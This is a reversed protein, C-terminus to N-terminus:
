RLAEMVFDPLAITRGAGQFYTIETFPVSRAVEACTMFFAQKKSFLHALPINDMLKKFKQAGTVSVRQDVADNHHRLLVVHSLPIPKRSFMGAEYVAYKELGRRIPRISATDRGSDKLTDAWVNLQPVGPLLTAKGEHLAVACVEDALLKCGRDYLALALATKGAKSAGLIAIGKGNVVAAAGHLAVLGRQMLLAPLASSLLFVRADEDSAGDSSEIVIRKGHEVCYNAIGPVRLLFRNGAAEYWRDAFDANELHGPVNGQEITVDAEARVARDMEPLEKESEFTLGFASWVAKAELGMLSEEGDISENM